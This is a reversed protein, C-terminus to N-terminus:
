PNSGVYKNTTMTKLIAWEKLIKKKNSTKVVFDGLRRLKKYAENM